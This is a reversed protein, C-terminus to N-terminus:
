RRGHIPLPCLRRPDPYRQDGPPEPPRPAITRVVELRDSRLAVLRNMPPVRVSLASPVVDSFTVVDSMVTSDPAVRLAGSTRRAVLPGPAESVMASVARGTTAM